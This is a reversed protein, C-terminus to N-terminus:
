EDVNKHIWNSLPPVSAFVTPGPTPLGISTVGFLYWQDNDPSLRCYLGGGSDGKGGTNHAGGACIHGDGVLQSFGRCVELSMIPLENERLVPSGSPKNKDTYGWGVATCKAGAPLEYTSPPICVPKIARNFTIPRSLKVISIDNVLMFVGQHFHMVEQVLIEETSEEEHLTSHDGLKAVISYSLYHEPRLWKHKPETNGILSLNKVCHSATILYRPSILSAGCFPLPQMGVKITKNEQVLRARYL